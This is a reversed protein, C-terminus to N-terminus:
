KWIKKEGMIYPEIIGSSKTITTQCKLQELLELLTEPSMFDTAIPFIWTSPITTHFLGKKVRYLSTDIIKEYIDGQFLTEQVPLFPVSSLPCNEKEPM